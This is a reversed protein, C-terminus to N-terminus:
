STMPTHQASAHRAALSRSSRKKVNITGTFPANPIPTVFIDTGAQALSPPAAATVALIFLSVATLFFQWRM